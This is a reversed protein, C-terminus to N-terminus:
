GGGSCSVFWEPQRERLESKFVPVAPNGEIDAIAAPSAVDLAGSASRRVPTFNGVAYERRVALACRENAIGVQPHAVSGRPLVRLQGSISHLIKSIRGVVGAPDFAIAGNEQPRGIGFFYRRKLVVPATDPFHIQNVGTDAMRSKVGPLIRERAVVLDKLDFSDNDVHIVLTDNAELHRRIRM